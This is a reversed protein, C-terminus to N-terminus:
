TPPPEGHTAPLVEVSARHRRPDALWFLQVTGARTMEADAFQTVSECGFRLADPWVATLTGLTERLHQEPPLFALVVDPPRGAEDGAATLVERSCHGSPLHVTRIRM